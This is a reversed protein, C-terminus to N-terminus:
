MWLYIKLIGLGKKLRSGSSSTWTILTGCMHRVNYVILRGTKDSIIYSWGSHDTNDAEEVVKHAWPGGDKHQVAVTSGIPFSPFNKKTDSGKLYKDQCAKLTEYPKDDANFSILEGNMQSLLARLQRNSLLTIPSPLGTIMPTLRM